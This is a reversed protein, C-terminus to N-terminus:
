PNESIVSLIGRFLEATSIGPPLSVKISLPRGPKGGCAIGAIIARKKPIPM